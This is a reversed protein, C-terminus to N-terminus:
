APNFGHARARLRQFLDAPNDPSQQNAHNLKIKEPFFGQWNNSMAQILSEIAVREPFQGCKKLAAQMGQESTYPNGRKRKYDLYLTWTETFEPSNFPMVMKEMLEEHSPRKRKQPVKEKEENEANLALVMRDPDSVEEAEHEEWNEEDPAFENQELERGKANGERESEYESEYESEIACRNGFPKTVTQLRNPLGKKLTEFDNIGVSNLVKKVESPLQDYLNKASKEMNPNALKQHRLFNPIVIYQGNYFLKSRNTFREMVTQLRNIEIGTENSIRKMGIEYIGILNAHQNTLFYVWLLKEEVSLEEFWTDSWM